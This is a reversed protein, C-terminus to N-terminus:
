HTLSLKKIMEDSITDASVGFGNVLVGKQGNKSEIGYVIAEDGPDSEGEFRYFESIEFESPKLSVPLTKCSISDNEADLNFDIDFGRKKLGDIAETVTDYNYM